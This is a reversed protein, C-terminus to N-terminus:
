KKFIYLYEDNYNSLNINLKKVFKFGTSKAINLINSNSIINLDHIHEYISNDNLDEITETLWVNDNGFDNPYIRYKTNYIIDNFKITSDNVKKISFNNPNFNNIRSYVSINNYKKYDVLHIVLYGNEDLMKYSKSLFDYKDKIYYIEMNLCLIHSVPSSININNIDSTNIDFVDFNINNYKNRCFNIMSKSNDLGLSNINKDQLIKNINGNKCGINVIIKNNDINTNKEITDIFFNNKIPDMIVNNYLNIYKENVINNNSCSTYNPNNTFYELNNKKNWSLILAFLGILIFLRTISDDTIYKKVNSILKIM